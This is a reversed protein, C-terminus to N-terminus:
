YRPRKATWSTGAPAPEAWGSSTSETVSDPVHWKEKAAKYNALEEGTSTGSGRLIAVHKALDGM